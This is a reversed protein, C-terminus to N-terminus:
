ASERLVHPVADRMTVFTYGASKLEHVVADLSALKQELTIRLDHQKTALTELGDASELLDMGHLELNVYPDETTQRTLWAARRPGALTLTTGIFPLRSWPLVHVPLEPLGAGRRTYPRGARYPQRPALLVDPAGLISRSERGGLRMAGMVAAKAAYYPGCPFVSADYLVGEGALVEFVRDNVIYGPARFGVPAEGVAEAVAARGRVVERRMEDEPLRSFDYRHGYSHNAIEHGLAHARRLAAAAADRRMDAGVAFLTLPIAHKDAWAALRGLALDYVLHVSERPLSEINLDHIACYNYIEDLDCSVSALKPASM